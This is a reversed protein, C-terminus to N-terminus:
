RLPRFTWAVLRSKKQGQGMPIVRKHSAKIKAITQAIAPLSSEKSVLTTFWDIQSGFERSEDILGRIFAVEGGPYWLENAQGGFNLNPRRGLNKWKRASGAAADQPSAHFPPNCVSFAFHEGNNVIGRFFHSTSPQRRLEVVPALDPNLQIIRAASALAVTDVDAGVFSWGYEGFGIIPYICNSGVGIDLGRTQPGLPIKRDRSSESLLDAVAHVYDARGPIPPCLYGAPIDWYQLGYYHILLARNLAKVAEPQAFDISLPGHRTPAVFKALEPDKKILLPFDYHGQHRNRPHLASM